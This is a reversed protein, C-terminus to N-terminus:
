AELKEITEFAPVILKTNALCNPYICGKAIITVQKQDVKKWKPVYNPDCHNRKAELHDGQCICTNDALESKYHRVVFAKEEARWNM